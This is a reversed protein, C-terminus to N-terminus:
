FLVQAFKTYQKLLENVEREMVGAGQAVRTIRNPEKAFTKAGDKGDLEADNMSDMITMLMKLRAMSEQESGKSLFDQSFGPIMGMIQGFPGMKMINQFQEYMDRLTFEGHKIKNILEENNDLNLEEVKRILGDIDGM